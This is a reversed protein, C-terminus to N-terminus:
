EVMSNNDVAQFSSGIITMQISPNVGIMGMFTRPHLIRIALQVAM